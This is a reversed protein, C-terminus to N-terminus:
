FSLRGITHCCSWSRWGGWRPGEDGAKFSDCAGERNRGERIRGLRLARFHFGTYSLAGQRRLRLLNPTQFPRCPLHPGM